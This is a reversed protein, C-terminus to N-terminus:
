VIYSKLITNGQANKIIVHDDYVIILHNPFDNNHIFLSLNYRKVRIPFYSKLIKERCDSDTMQIKYKRCYLLRTIHSSQISIMDQVRECIFGSSSTTYFINKIEIDQMMKLCNYCPRSNVTDGNHNIRIVVIDLKRGKNKVKKSIAWKQIKYDFYIDKGFYSLIANAEAHVSGLSCDSHVCGYNNCCPKGMIKRHKLIAACHKYVIPSNIAGEKLKSYVKDFLVNNAMLLNQLM